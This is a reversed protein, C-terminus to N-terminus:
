RDVAAIAGLVREDAIGSSRLEALLRQLAPVNV